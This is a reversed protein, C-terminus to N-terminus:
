DSHVAPGWGVSRKQGDVQVRNGQISVIKGIDATSFATRGDGLRIRLSSGGQNYSLLEASAFRLASQDTRAAAHMFGQNASAYQLARCDQKLVTLMFSRDSRLAFGVHQLADENQNVAVACLAEGGGRIGDSAWQLAHGNGQVAILGVDPDARIDKSAWRLALGNQNLAASVVDRDARLEETAYQLSTGKQTVAAHVVERDGHPGNGAHVLADGNQRVALLVLVRDGHLENSAYMLAEWVRAVRALMFDRDTGKELTPISLLSGRLKLREFQTHGFQDRKVGVDRAWSLM